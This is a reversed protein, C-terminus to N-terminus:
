DDWIRETLPLGEIDALTLPNDPVVGAQELLSSVQRVHQTSHWVTREFLDHRSTHGFYAEVSGGFEEGNAGDWWTSFRETVAEGFAVIQATTVMDEPPAAVLEERTLVIGQQESDMFAAPIQFVHHMLVRWSRPRNPLERALESDPMQRTIRVATDLVHAYRQALEVPSLKPGTDDDIGLFEVVDQLVQAFVFKAGQSVIPVSRAGLERMAALGSENDLVNVSEFEIGRISM